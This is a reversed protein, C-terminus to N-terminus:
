KSLFRKITDVLKSPDVPKELYADPKADIGLAKKKREALEENYIMSKLDVGTRQSAGSVVIV